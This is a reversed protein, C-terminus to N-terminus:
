RDRLFKGKGDKADSGKGNGKGRAGGGGGSGGAAPAPRGGSDGAPRGADRRRKKQSSRNKKKMSTAGGYGEDGSSDEDTRGRKPGTSFRLSGFGPDLLQTRSRQATTFQLVKKDVERTWFDKDLAAEKFVTDWPRAPDFLVTLGVRTMDAHETALRRRIRELHAKRMKHDACAVIWWLQPFDDNLESICDYYRKLRTRTAAGLVEM